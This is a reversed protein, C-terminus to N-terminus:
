KIFFGFLNKKLSFKVNVYESENKPSFSNNKEIIFKGNLDFQEFYPRNSKKKDAILEVLYMNNKYYITDINKSYFNLNSTNFERFENGGNFSLEEDYDFKISQNNIQTPKIAKKTSLWEDNKQILINLEISPNFIELNSYFVEFDIEQKSEIDKAYTARKCRAKVKVIDEYIVFKKKIIEEGTDENKVILFYFGSKLFNINENPFICQYNTYDINTNFSFFYEEIYNEYFGDLYDSEILDSKEWKSNCHVFSYKYNSLNTGIEDFSLLLQENSNLNIIPDLLENETNQILVTKINEAFYENLIQSNAKFFFIFM